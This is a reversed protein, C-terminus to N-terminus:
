ISSECRGANPVPSTMTAILSYGPYDHQATKTFQQVATDGTEAVVIAQIPKITDTTGDKKLM